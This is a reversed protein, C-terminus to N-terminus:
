VLQVISLMCPSNTPNGGVIISGGSLTGCTVDILFTFTNPVTVIATINLLSLPVTNGWNQYQSTGFSPNNPAINTTIRPLVTGVGGGLGFCGLQFTILYTRTAGSANTFLTNGTGSISLAGGFSNFDTIPFPITNAGGTNLGIQTVNGNFQAQLATGGGAPTAWTGDGRWFTSSSASTGTNLSGVAVQVNSPLAASLSPVGSGNTAVVSNNATALGSVAIGSSAYYALQNTTGSNVTGSGSPAVWSGDGRWFTSSSASTGNNLSATSVQVSAPLATLLAITGTTTIPGGTLGLGTAVSTVTGSGGGGLANGYAGVVEGSPDRLLVVSM